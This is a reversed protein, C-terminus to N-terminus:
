WKEMNPRPDPTTTSQILEYDKGEEKSEAWKWAIKVNHQSVSLKQKEVMLLQQLRIKVM